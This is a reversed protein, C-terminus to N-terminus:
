LQAKLNPRPFASFINNEMPLEHYLEYPTYPTKARHTRPLASIMKNLISGPYEALLKNLLDVPSSANICSDSGTATIVKTAFNLAGLM